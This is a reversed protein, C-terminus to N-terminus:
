SQVGGSSTGGSAPAGGSGGPKIIVNTVAKLVQMFAADAFGFVFAAVYFTNHDVVVKSTTGLNLLVLYVLAGISGTVTGFLPRVYYWYDYSRSWKDNHNFIGWFSSVVAGLAGFWVVGVPMSGLTSPTHTRFASWTQYVIFLAILGALYLLALYFFRVPMKGLTGTGADSGPPQTVSSDQVSM